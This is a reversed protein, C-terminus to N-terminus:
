PAVSNAPSASSSDATTGGPSNKAADEVARPGMANLSMAAEIVRGIALASKQKLAPLDADDFLRQGSDDVTCRLLLATDVEKPQPLDPRQWGNSYFCQGFMVGLRDCAELLTDPPNPIEEFYILNLNAEAYYRIETEIRRADWDFLLEQQVYGGRCLVKQGNILVQRGHSGNREHLHTTVQRVGFHVTTEDSQAGDSEFVLALDYLAQEGYGRPWWLRPHNLV